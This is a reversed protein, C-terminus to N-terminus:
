NKQKIYEIGNLLLPFTMFVLWIITNRPLVNYNYNLSYIVLAYLTCFFSDGIYVQKDSYREIHEKINEKLDTRYNGNKNPLFAALLIYNQMIYIASVGLLFYQLGIYLGQSLYKTSEIDKNQFVKYINDIALAFM